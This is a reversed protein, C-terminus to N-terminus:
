ILVWRCCLLVDEIDTYHVPFSQINRRFKAIADMVSQLQASLCRSALSYYFLWVSSYDVGSRRWSFAVAEISENRKQCYREFISWLSTFPVACFIFYHFAMLQIAPNNSSESHQDTLSTCQHHLSLIACRAYGLLISCAKEQQTTNESLLMSWWALRCERFSAESKAFTGLGARYALKGLRRELALGATSFLNGLIRGPGPLNSTTFNSSWTSTYSYITTSDDQLLDDLWSLTSPPLNASDTNGELM